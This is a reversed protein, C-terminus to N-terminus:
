LRIYNYRYRDHAPGTVAGDEGGLQFATNTREDPIYVQRASSDALVAPHEFTARCRPYARGEGAPVPPDTNGGEPCADHSAM